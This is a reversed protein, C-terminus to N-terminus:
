YLKTFDIKFKIKYVHWVLFVFICAGSSNAAMKLVDKFTNPVFVEKSMINTQIKILSSMRMLRLYTSEKRQNNLKDNIRVNSDGQLM